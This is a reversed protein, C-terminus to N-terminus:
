LRKALKSDPFAIKFLEGWYIIGYFSYIPSNFNEPIAKNNRLMLRLGLDAGVGLWRFIKYSASIGMEYVLVTRKDVRYSLGNYDYDYRSRGIGIQVPTVSFKWHESQYYMYRAFFSVYAFRLEATTEDIGGIANPTFITKTLNNTHQNYGAGFTLKGGFEAGLKVGWISARRDSIFSNRSDFFFALRPRKSFWQQLSDAMQANANACLFLFVFVPFSRRM